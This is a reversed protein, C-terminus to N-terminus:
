KYPVGEPGKIKVWFSYLVYDKGPSVEWSVNQRWVSTDYTSRKLEEQTPLRLKESPSSGGGSIDIKDIVWGNKLKVELIDTGDDWDIVADCNLHMITYTADTRLHPHSFTCAGQDSYSAGNCNNHDAGRSCTKVRVVADNRKLVHIKRTAYFNVTWAKHSIGQSTKLVFSANHDPIESIRSPIKAKIKTDSWSEVTLPYKQVKDFRNKVSLVLTGKSKGFQKGKLYLNGGPTIAGFKPSTFIGQIKPIVKLLGKFDFNFRKAEKKGRMTVGSYSGTAQLVKGDPKLLTVLHDDDEGSMSLSESDAISEEHTAAEAHITVPKGNAESSSTLKLVDDAAEVAYTGPVVMVPEGNPSQFYVTKDLEIVQEFEAPRADAEIEGETIQASTCGYLGVMMLVVPMLWQYKQQKRM